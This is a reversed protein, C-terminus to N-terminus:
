KKGFRVTLGLWPIAVFTDIGEGVPVFAGFDLGVNKIIRRGGLSLMAVFEDPTGIYHNESILYGRPGTRIMGSISITPTHAIKGDAFGWGLDISLNKDRTGFTAVGYLIGYSINEEGIVTGALAGAGINIRNEVVPVSFKVTAWAPTANGGFLIIPVTGVGASFHDSLGYVAQNFLVWVNQYYGEGKKLNYANPAFFYRTSQPNDTWYVGNKDRTITISSIRKIKEVPIVVEGLIETKLRIKQPTKELIVGIYENGDVTEIKTKVSDRATQGFAPLSVWSVLALIFLVFTKKM